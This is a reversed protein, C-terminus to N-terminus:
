QFDSLAIEEATGEELLILDTQLMCIPIVNRNEKLLINLM